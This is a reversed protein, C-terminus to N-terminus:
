PAAARRTLQELAGAIKNVVEARDHIGYRAVLKRPDTYGIWRRGQADQWAVVRLPLDLGIRPNSHMLPTGLKPNGFILVEIPALKLGAKEAAAAHNVRAAVFLAPNAAIAAQLRDLTAGVPHHSQRVIFEDSWAPATAALTLLTSLALILKKM